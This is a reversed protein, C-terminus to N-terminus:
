FGILLLNSLAGSMTGLLIGTLVDLFYHEESVIRELSILVAWILLISSILPETGYLISFTAILGVRTAHGSPFSYADFIHSNQIKDRPRKRRINLKLPMLIVTVAIITVTLYLIAMIKMKAFFWLFIIVMWYSSQNATYKVYRLVGSISRFTAAISSSVSQDFDLIRALMM